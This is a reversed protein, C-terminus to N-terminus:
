VPRRPLKRAVAWETVLVSLSLLLPNPNKLSAALNSAVGVLGLLLRDDASVKDPDIPCNDFLDM